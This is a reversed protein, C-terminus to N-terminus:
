GSLLGRRSPARKSIGSLSSVGVWGKRWGVCSACVGCVGVLEGERGPSACRVSMFSETSPDLTPEVGARLLSHVLPKHIIVSQHPSPLAAVVATRASIELENGNDSWPTVIVLPRWRCCHDLGTLRGDHWSASVVTSRGRGSSCRSSWQSGDSVCSPEVQGLRAAAVTHLCTTKINLNLKLKVEQCHRRLRTNGGREYMQKNKWRSLNIGCHKM